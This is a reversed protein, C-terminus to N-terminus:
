ALNNVADRGLDAPTRLLALWVRGPLDDPKGGRDKPNQVIIAGFVEATWRKEFVPPGAALGAPIM